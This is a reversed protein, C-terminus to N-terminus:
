VFHNCLAFVGFLDMAKGGSLSELNFNRTVALALVLAIAIIVNVLPGALAVVLGQWPKDPMRELRALGGLPHLTIDVTAIGYAKAAFAHGREHLLVCIFVCIWILVANLAGTRDGTYSYIYLFGGLLLIFTGIHVRIDIGAIRAVKFSWRM